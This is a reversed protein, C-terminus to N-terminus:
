DDLLAKMAQLKRILGDIGHRDVTAVIQVVKGDTGLKFDPQAEPPRDLAELTRRASSMPAVPEQFGDPKQFLEVESVQLAAALQAL